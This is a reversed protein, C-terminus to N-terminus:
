YKSPTFTLLWLMVTSIGGYPQPLIGLIFGAPGGILFGEGIISGPTYLFRGGYLAGGLMGGFGCCLRGIVNM